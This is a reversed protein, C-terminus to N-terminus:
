DKSLFSKLGKLKNGILEKNKDTLVKKGVFDVASSAANLAKEGGKKALEKNKDTLVKKNVFDAASTAANVAMEGGKKALEKNKDSLIKKEVFEGAAPAMSVVAEGGRIATKIGIKTATKTVFSMGPIPVGILDETLESIGDILDAAGDVIEDVKENRNLRKVKLNEAKNVEEISEKESAPDIDLSEDTDPILKKLNKFLSM